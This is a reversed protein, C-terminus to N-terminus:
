DELKPAAEFLICGGLSLWSTVKSAVTGGITPVVVSTVFEAGPARKQDVELAFKGSRITAKTGPDLHSRGLIRGFGAVTLCKGFGEVTTEADAQSMGTAMLLKVELSTQSLQPQNGTGTNCTVGPIALTTGPFIWHGHDSNGFVPRRPHQGAVSEILSQNADYISTWKDADGLLAAAIDSLTDGPVVTHTTTCTRAGLVSPAEVLPM